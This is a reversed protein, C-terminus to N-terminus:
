STSKVTLIAATVTPAAAPEALRVEAAPSDVRGVALIVLTLGQNLLPYILYAWNLGQAM